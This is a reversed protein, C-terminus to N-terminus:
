FRLIERIEKETEVSKEVNEFKFTFTNEEKIAQFGKPYVVKLEGNKGVVWMLNDTDNQYEIPLEANGTTMFHIITNQKKNVLYADFLELPANDEAQFTAKVVTESPKEPRASNWVGLHKVSFRSVVKQNALTEKIVKAYGEQLRAANQGSLAKKQEELGALQDAFQGLLAAKKDKLQNDREALLQNYTALKAEYDQLAKQYDGGALVTKVILQVNKSPTTEDIMTVSYQDEGVKAWKIDDWEEASAKAFAENQDASVEWLLNGYKKALEAIRPDEKSVEDFDFDTVNNNPNSEQPKIPKTPMPITADIEQLATNQTAKIQQINAEIGRVSQVADSGSSNFNTLYDDMQKKLDGTLIPEIVIPLNYAWNKNTEDAQYARYQHIPNYNINSVLEVELAKKPNIQVPEGNQFAQIDIMGTSILQYTASASDYKMPMGAIFFDIFDTYEKYRLEVEGSVIEGNNSVFANAPVSVKSGSEYEFIGGETGEVKFVTGSKELKEMPTFVFPQENLKIAAEQVLGNSGGITFYVALALMAAASLSAVYTINRRWSRMRVVKAPQKSVEIPKLKVVKAPQQKPVEPVAEMQKLLADFDKHKNIEKSSIDPLNFQFNYKNQDM